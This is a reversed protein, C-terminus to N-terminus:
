NTGRIKLVFQSAQDAVCPDVPPVTVRQPGPLRRPRLAPGPLGDQVHSRKM